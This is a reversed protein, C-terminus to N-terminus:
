IEITAGNSMSIKNLAKSMESYIVNIAAANLFSANSGRAWWDPHGVGAHEGEVNEFCDTLLKEM